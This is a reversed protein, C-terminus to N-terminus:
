FAGGVIPYENEEEHFFGGHVDALLLKLENYDSDMRLQLSGHTENTITNTRAQAAELSSDGKVIINSALKRLTVAGDRIKKDSVVANNLKRETVAFDAMKSHLVAGDQLKEANISADQIHDTGIANPSVKQGTVAEDALKESTVNQDAIKDKVVSGDSLNLADVAGESLKEKTVSGDVIKENTVAGAQLKSGSVSDNIIRDEDVVFQETLIGEFEEKFRIGGMVGRIDETEAIDGDPGTTIKWLPLYDAAPLSASLVVGKKDAFYLYFVSSRSNTTLTLGEVNYLVDNFSCIFGNVTFRSGDMTDVVLEAGQVIYDELFYGFSEVATTSGQQQNILTSLVDATVKGVSM